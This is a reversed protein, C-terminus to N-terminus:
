KLEIAPKGHGSSAAILPLRVTADLGSVQGHALRNELTISGHLARTIELCIALGLGSGQHTNGASFPQFLRAALESSIGPGSDSITLAMFQTDAVLRVSLQGGEPSNKTANHLLNRGLEALMWTHALV